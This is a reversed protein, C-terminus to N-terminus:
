DTVYDLNKVKSEHEITCCVPLSRVSLSSCFPGMTAMGLATTSGHVITIWAYCARKAFEAIIRGLRNPVTANRAFDHRAERRRLRCLIKLSDRQALGVQVWSAETRDSPCPLPLLFLTRVIPIVHEM